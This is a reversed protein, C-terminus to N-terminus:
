IDTYIKSVNEELNSKTLQMNEPEKNGFYITFNAMQADAKSCLEWLREATEKANPLPTIRYKSKNRIDQTVVVGLANTCYGLAGKATKIVLKPKAMSLLVFAFTTDVAAKDEAKDDKAKHLHLMGQESLVDILEIGRERSITPLEPLHPFSDVGAFHALVSLQELSILYSIAM